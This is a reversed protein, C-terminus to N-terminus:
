FFYYILVFIAIFLKEYITLTKEIDRNNRNSNRLFYNWLHTNNLHFLIRNKIKCTKLQFQLILKFFLFYKKRIFIVNFRYVNYCASIEIKVKLLNFILM